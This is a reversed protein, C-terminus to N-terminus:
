VEDMCVVFIHYSCAAAFHSPSAASPGGTMDSVKRWGNRMRWKAKKGVIWGHVIKATDAYGVIM